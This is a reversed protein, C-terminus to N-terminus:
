LRAVMSRSPFRGTTCTAPRWATASQGFQRAGEAVVLPLPQRSTISTTRVSTMMSDIQARRKTQRRSRPSRGPRGEVLAERPNAAAPRTLPRQREEGVELAAAGGTGHRAIEADGLVVQAESDAAPSLGGV